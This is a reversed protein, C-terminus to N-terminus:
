GFVMKNRNKSLEKSLDKNTNKRNLDTSKNYSITDAPNFVILPYMAAGVNNEDLMGNYGMQQLKKFYMDRHKENLSIKRCVTTIFKDYAAYMTYKDDKGKTINLFRKAFDRGAKYKDLGLSKVTEKGVKKIERNSLDECLEMFAAVRVATGPVKIDSTAKYIIQYQKKKADKSWTMTDKNRRYFEADQPAMVGYLPGRKLDENKTGSVRSMYAGKKFTIDNYDGMSYKYNRFNSEDAKRLTRMGYRGNTNGDKDKQSIYSEAMSTQVKGSIKQNRRKGAATLTGDPNQYRRVGWKMGLVGYHMLEDPRLNREYM